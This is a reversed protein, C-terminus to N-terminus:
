FLYSLGTSRCTTRIKARRFLNIFVIHVYEFIRKEIMVDLYPSWIKINEGSLKDQLKEIRADMKGFAARCKEEFAKQESQKNVIPQLLNIIHERIKTDQDLLDLQERAHLLEDNVDEEPEEEELGYVDRDEKKKM